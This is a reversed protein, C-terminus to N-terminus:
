DEIFFDELSTEHLREIFYLCDHIAERLDIYEKCTANRIAKKIEVSDYLAEQIVNKTNDLVSTYYLINEPDDTPEKIVQNLPNVKKTSINDKPM